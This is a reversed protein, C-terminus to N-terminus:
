ETGSSLTNPQGEPPVPVEIAIVPGSSASPPTEVSETAPGDLEEAIERPLLAGDRSTASKVQGATLNKADRLDTLNLNARSLNAVTLDAETLHAETLNARSLNAGILNARNLDARVLNADRLDTGTLDVGSLERWEPPEQPPKRRGLVTLIAQIDARPKGSGAAESIVVEFTPRPPWPANQRVYGTLVEMIAWHDRPSDRAIRELAYIGGLRVELNPKGDKLEAGIQGIAQTFRNTIQAERDVELKKQTERLNRWAILGAAVAAVGTFLPILGTWIKIKNDTEYQLLDKEFALRGPAEATPVTTAIITAVARYEAVQNAPYNALYVVVTVLGLGALVFLVAGIVKLANAAIFKPIGRIARV